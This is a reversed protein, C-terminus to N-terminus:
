KKDGPSVQKKEDNVTGLPLSFGFTSGEGKQSRIWIEGKHLEIFKKSLALGLGLGSLSERDGIRRHYPNFLREQDEKSIGLGTDQIEVVLNNSEERAKLIITGDAPTFKLANTLLNQVVQRLRGIDASVVPLHPPLDVVLTQGSQLALPTMEQGTEKLLAKMDVLGSSLELRGTEIKALDLLEDIRKNLHSASRDVIQILKLLHEEHIEAQILEIAALVPTIPTKLEHVLARTFDTRKQIEEEVKLRLKKEEKYQQQSHQSLVRYEKEGEQLKNKEENLRGLMDNISVSLRALEDHGNISLQSTLLGKEMDVGTVYADIHALRRLVQRDFILVLSIFSCAVLAVIVVWLLTSSNLGQHYIDRPLDVRLVLITNNYIDRIPAYGAVTTEDLPQVIISKEDSSAGLEEWFGAPLKMVSVPELAIPLQVRDELKKIVADDIYRGMILTGHNPGEGKSTLIPHSSILMPSDSLLVIGSTVNELSTHTLLLSDPKLYEQIPLTIQSRTNLDLAKAFVIQGSSNALVILNLALQILTEDNLNAKIYLQSPNEAFAYTDDWFAWDTVTTNLYNIDDDLAHLARQVSKITYVEELDSFSNSVITVILTYSVISVILVVLISFVVIRTRLNM